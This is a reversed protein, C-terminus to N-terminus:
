EPCCIARTMETNVEDISTMATVYKDPCRAPSYVYSQESIMGSTVSGGYVGTYYCTTSPFNPPFCSPDRGRIVYDSTWTSTSSVPGQSGTIVIIDTYTSKEISDYGYPSQKYVRGLCSAPPTFISSDLDTLTRTTAAAPPCALVPRSSQFTPTTM